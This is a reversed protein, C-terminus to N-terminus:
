QTEESEERDHVPTPSIEKTAWRPYVGSRYAFTTGGANYEMLQKNTVLCFNGGRRRTVTDFHYWGHQVYVLNWWHRYGEHSPYREITLNPIGARTLLARCVAYFTYCDGNGFTLGKEAVARWNTHGNDGFYSVHSRVYSYIARAKTTVSWSPRLIAKLIPDVTNELRGPKFVQLYSWTKAVNGAKDKARFRVKYLGTKKWNVGNTNVTIKVHRDHNDKVSIFRKFNFNERQDSYCTLYADEMCRSKKKM